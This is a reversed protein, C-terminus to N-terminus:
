ILSAMSRVRAVRQSIRSIVRRHLRKTSPSRMRRQSPMSPISPAIVSGVSQRISSEAYHSKMAPISWFVSIHSCTRSRAGNMSASAVSWRTPFHNGYSSRKSSVHNHMPEISSPASVMDLTEKVRYNRSGTLSSNRRTMNVQLWSGPSRRAM